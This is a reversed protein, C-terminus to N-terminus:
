LPRDIRPVRERLTPAGNKNHRNTKNMGSTFPHAHNVRRIQDEKKMERREKQNTVYM